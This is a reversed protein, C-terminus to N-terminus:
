LKNLRVNIRLLTEDIKSIIITIVKNIPMLFSSDDIEKFYESKSLELIGIKSNLLLNSMYSLKDNDNINYIKDVIEGESNKYKSHPIDIKEIDVNYLRHENKHVRLMFAFNSAIFSVEDFILDEGFYDGYIKKSIDLEIFINESIKDRKDDLEDENPLDLKIEKM